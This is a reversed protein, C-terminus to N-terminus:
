IAKHSDDERFYEQYDLRGNNILAINEESVWEIRKGNEWVGNKKNGTKEYYVGLGHQKGKYWWGEFKRGDTWSYIGFGEKKDNQYQGYYIRGDAWFYYGFGHM